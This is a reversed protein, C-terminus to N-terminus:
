TVLTVGVLTVLTVLTIKVSAALDLTVLTVLTVLIVLTVLTVLTNKVASVLVLTRTVLTSTPTILPLIGTPAFVVWRLPPPCGTKGSMPVFDLYVHSHHQYM